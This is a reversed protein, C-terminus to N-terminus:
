CHTIAIKTTKPKTIQLTQLQTNTPARNLIYHMSKNYSHNIHHNVQYITTEPKVQVARLSKDDRHKWIFWCISAEMRRRRAMNIKSLSTDVFWNEIWEKMTLDSSSPGTSGLGFRVARSYSCHLFLHSITEDHTRCLHCVPSLNTMRTSLKVMVPLIDNYCKWIFVQIRPLVKLKWIKKWIPNPTPTIAAGLESQILCQYVSKATLRDDPTYPCILKDQQSSTTQHNIYLINEVARPHFAQRLFNSNWERTHEHIVDKVLTPTNPITPKTQEHTLTNPQDFSYWHHKWLKINDGTGIKWIGKEKIIELGVNFGKWIWSSNAKVKEICLPSIGRFYKAEM